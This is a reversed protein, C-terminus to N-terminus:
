VPVCGGDRGPIVKTHMVDKAVVEATFYGYVTLGKLTTFGDEASGHTGKVGDLSEIVAAQDTAALDVFAAGRLQQARADIAALGALLRDREAVPYWETLLLDIFENVKVSTAGPTDTEPIIMEAVRTVLANQRADLTRLHRGALRAHVARGVALRQDPSLPALIPAVAAGGLIRVLERRHM